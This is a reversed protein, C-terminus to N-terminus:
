KKHNHVLIEKLYLKSLFVWTNSIDENDFGYTAVSLLGDRLALFGIALLKSDYDQKITGSDKLRDFFSLIYELADNNLLTFQKQLEPNHRTENLVDFSFKPANRLKDFFFNFFDKTAFYELDEELVSLVERRRNKIRYKFTEVLLEDKKFYKHITAKSVGMAKAIDAMTTQQYGKESFVNLATKIIENKAHKEYGPFVKPM